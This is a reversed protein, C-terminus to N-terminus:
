SHGNNSKMAKLIAGPVVSDSPTPVVLKSPEQKAVIEKVMELLGYFLVKNQIPGSVQVNGTSENYQIKIEIM